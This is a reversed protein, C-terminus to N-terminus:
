QAPGGRRRLLSSAALLALFAALNLAAFGYLRHEEEFRADVANRGAWEIFDDRVEPPPVRLAAIRRLWASAWGPPGADTAWTAAAFALATAVLRRDRLHLMAAGAVAATLVARDGAPHRERDALVALVVGIVALTAFSRAM